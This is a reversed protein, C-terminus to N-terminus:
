VDMAMENEFNLYFLVLFLEFLKVRIPQKYSYEVESGEVLVKLLIIFENELKLVYFFVGELDHPYVGFFVCDGIQFISDRLPCLNWPVVENDKQSM